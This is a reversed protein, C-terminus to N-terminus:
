IYPGPPILRGVERIQDALAAAGAAPVNLRVEPAFRRIAWDLSDRDVQVPKGEGATRSVLGRNARGTVDGILLIRFPTEADPVGEGREM